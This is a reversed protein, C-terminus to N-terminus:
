PKTENDIHTENILYQLIKYRFLKKFTDVDTKYCTPNCVHRNCVNILNYVDNRFLKDFTNISKNPPRTTCPHIHQIEESVDKMKSTSKYQEIDRIIINNLYDIM